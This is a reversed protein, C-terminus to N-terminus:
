DPLLNYLDSDLTNFYLECESYSDGHCLVDGSEIDFLEYWHDNTCHAIQENIKLDIQKIM